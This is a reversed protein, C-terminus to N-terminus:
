DREDFAFLPLLEVASIGLEQLYPIKEILGAYTGRRGPTVGSSPHRTFGGVHMEYIITKAFPRGLPTDGEWDYGNPDIVVSKLATAANDGRKRAAERSYGPPRAIAKGYPDILVKDPDFRLGAAPEFPGAIRYGYLQGATVGPVFAHWYHYTLNTRPDLDIVRSPARDDVRDFLVIQAARSHKAYVSFNAGGGGLTAGLPFSKGQHQIASACMTYSRGTALTASPQTARLLNSNPKKDLM